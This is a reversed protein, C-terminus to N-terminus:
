PPGHQVAPPLGNLQRVWNPVETLSTIEPPDDGFGWGYRNLWLGHLGAAQAGRADTNPLDGVYLADGPQVGVRQVARRFIEADPKRVGETGSSVVVPFFRQVGLRTLHARCAAESRSNSVLGTALGEQELTELCYRVDSFLPPHHEGIAFWRDQFAAGQAETVERGAARHLVAGWFAPTEPEGRADFEAQVERYAHALHDADVEVGVSRATEAWVLPDANDILTGGLDFLVAHIM